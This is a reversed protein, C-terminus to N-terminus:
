HRRMFLNFITLSQFLKYFFLILQVKVLPFFQHVELGADEQTQHKLLNPVITMNYEIAKCMPITIPECRRGGSAVGAPWLHGDPDQDDGGGGAADHFTPLKVGPRGPFSRQAAAVAVPPGEAVDALVITVAVLVCVVAM